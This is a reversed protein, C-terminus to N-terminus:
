RTLAEDRTWRWGYRFRHTSTGAQITTLACLQRWKHGGEALALSCPPVTFLELEGPNAGEIRWVIRAPDRALIAGWNLDGNLSYTAALSEIASRCRDAVDFDVVISAPRAPDRSLTVAASFHHDFARGTLLLCLASGVAPGHLHVEQYVPNAIRLPDASHVNSAALETSVDSAVIAHTWRPGFRCFDVGFDKGRMSAYADHVIAQFEPASAVSM